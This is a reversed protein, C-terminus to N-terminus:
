LVVAFRNSIFEVVIKIYVNELLTLSFIKYLVKVHQRCM